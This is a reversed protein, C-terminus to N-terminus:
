RLVQLTLLMIISFGGTGILSLIEYRNNLITSQDIAYLEM